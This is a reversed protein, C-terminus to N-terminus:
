VMRPRGLYPLNVTFDIALVVILLLIATIDVAAVVDVLSVVCLLSCCTKGDRYNSISLLGLKM